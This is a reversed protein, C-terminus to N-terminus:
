LDGPEWGATSLSAMGWILNSLAGDLMAKLVALPSANVAERPLRNWLKMVRQTFFEKRFM